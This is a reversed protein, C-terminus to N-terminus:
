EDGALDATLQSGCGEAIEEIWAVLGQSLNTGRIQDNIMERVALGTQVLDNVRESVAVRELGTRRMLDPLEVPGFTDLESIITFNVPDGAVRLARLLM